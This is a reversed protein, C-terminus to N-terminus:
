EGQDAMERLGLGPSGGEGRYVLDFTLLANEAQDGNFHEYVIIKKTGDRNPNCITHYKSSFSTVVDPLTLPYFILPAKTRPVTRDLIKELPGSNGMPQWTSVVPKLYIAECELLPRGLQWDLIRVAFSCYSNRFRLIM